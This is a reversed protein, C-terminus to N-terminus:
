FGFGGPGRAGGGAPAGATTTIVVQDGEQLSGSTIETNTGDTMGAEVPVAIQQGERMITVVKQKGQTRVARNPVVLANDKEEVIVNLNATMGSQVSPDPNTLKITVPYNVVGQSLTGAPSISDVKGTATVNPLADFTMQVDQGAHLRARDLESVNAVVELSTLDALQVPNTSAGITQGQTVNVATIVGDFPATLTTQDLALQAQQLAVNAQDVAAQAAKVTLDDPPAKVADLAAQASAIGAKASAVDAATPGQHLKDLAAQAQALQQEAVTVDNPDAGALLKDLNNQAIQVNAEQQNVQSRASQCATSDDPHKAAGCTADRNAQAGWLTNKAQELSQKGNAIDTDTPGAKVKDLNAQASAVQAQAAAIDAPTTTSYLQNLNATAQDVKAQAQTIDTDKAAEQAQQLKLQAAQLDSKASDVALKANTNDLQVLPQGKKVTDGQNVKVDTVTGGTQFNLNVQSVPQLNGAANVTAVLNTRAVATTPVSATAAQRATFQRYAFFGLVAAALVVLAMALWRRSTKKRRGSTPLTTTAM